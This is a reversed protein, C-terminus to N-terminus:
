ESGLVQAFYAPSALLDALILGERAGRQLRRVAPRLLHWEYRVKKKAASHTSGLRQDTAQGNEPFLYRM